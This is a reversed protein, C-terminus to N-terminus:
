GPSAEDRLMRESMKAAAEMLSPSLMNRRALVPVLYNAVEQFSNVDPDLQKGIGEATVLGVMMLTMDPVPRVGHKRGVAFIKDILQGFELERTSRTRWEANFTAVDKELEAWDVTGEVYSHYSRLHRMFDDVDGMVLCRNFDIYHELLKESLQKVLGVDFITVTGDRSVVFNGPHLDAHLFGDDFCMKLFVERLHRAFGEPLQDRPIADVKEGRVFEMTMVREGSRDAFVKPFRVKKVRRFNERFREYNRAEIRLDTQQVIGEVFHELHVALEAHRARGSVRELIRAFFLLIRGDREANRRVDPRLVKVAVETGDLLVGRHVQAVSAAAIPLEDLERFLEGIPAGLEREVIARANPFAPLKDQLHRLEAILEPAFLDPRTSMVQGLKIFTAGLAEMASRLVRGRLAAVRARKVDPDRVFVLGARLIAYRLLSWWAVLWIFSGRVLFGLAQM